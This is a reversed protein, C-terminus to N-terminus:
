RVSAPFEPALDLYRALQWDWYSWARWDQMQAHVASAVKERWETFLYAHSDTLLDPNRALFADAAPLAQGGLSLLYDRDLAPGPGGMERSHMVNYDAIIGALNAFACLYLTLTLSVLNAGILWRNSRGLAMRALILALGVAVLLMWVFAAIRWYTLSYAEVYLDLRLISSIVLWVNQIIWVTVLTRIAPSRETDSGPRLSVVVFAAALLATVILPYAGRHAYEAYSMGDPLAVGGWLYLADLTTQVAFIANFVILSRLTAARGTFGLTPAASATKERPRAARPRHERAFIVPWILITLLLWFIIRSADLHQALLRVLAPLDIATAWNAILPNAKIFLFAFVGGLAVPVFWMVLVGVLSQPRKSAFGVVARGIDAITQWLCRVLLVGATRLVRSFESETTAFSLAAFVATTAIAFIFSLPSPNVAYPLLGTVLAFAAVAMRSRGGHIPNVVAAVIALALLFLCLSVGIDYTYLLRDALAVLMAVGALAFADLHSGAPRPGAPAKVEPVTESEPAAIPVTSM